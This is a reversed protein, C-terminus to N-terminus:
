VGLQPICALYRERLKKLGADSKLHVYGEFASLPSDGRLFRIDTETVGGIRERGALYLWESFSHRGVHSCIKEELPGNPDHLGACMGARALVKYVQKQSIQGGTSSLFLLKSGKARSSRVELWRRLYYEMESDFFVILNSRKKVKKLKISQNEWRIGDMTLSLAEGIRMGTKLLLLFLAKYQIDDLAQLIKIAEEITLARHTHEESDTKYGSRRDRVISVPNSEIRGEFILFEYLSSIAALHFSITRNTLGRAQLLGVYRSIDHKDAGEPPKELFAIFKEIIAGYQRITLPALGCTAADRSWASIM